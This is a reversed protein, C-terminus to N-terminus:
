QAQYTDLATNIQQLEQLVTDSIVDFHNILMDQKTSVLDYKSQLLGAYFTLKDLLYTKANYEIRKESACTDNRISDQLASQAMTQDYNNVSDFYLKDATNKDVTCANMDLQLLSIEQNIFAILGAWQEIANSSDSLHKQLTAQRDTSLSLAQIIDTRVLDEITKLTLLEWGEPNAEGTINALDLHIQIAEFWLNNIMTPAVITTTDATADQYIVTGVGVPEQALCFASLLTLIAIASLHKKM